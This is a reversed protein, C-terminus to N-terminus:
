SALCIWTCDLSHDIHPSVLHHRVATFLLTGLRTRCM